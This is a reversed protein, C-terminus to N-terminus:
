RRTKSRRSFASKASEDMNERYHARHHLADGARAHANAVADDSFDAASQERQDADARVVIFGVGLRERVLDDLQADKGVLRAQHIAGYEVAASENSSTECNVSCPSTRRPRRGENM